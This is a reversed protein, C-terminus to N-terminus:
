QLFYMCGYNYVCVTLSTHPLTRQPNSLQCCFTFVENDPKAPAPTQWHQKVGREPNGCLHVWGFLCRRPVRRGCIFLSVSSSSMCCVCACACVCSFVCVSYILHQSFGSWWSWTLAWCHVTAISLLLMAKWDIKLFGTNSIKKVAHILTLCFTISFM